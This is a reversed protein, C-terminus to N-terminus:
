FELMKMEEDIFFRSYSKPPEKQFTGDSAFPLPTVKIGNKTREFFVVQGSVNKKGEKSMLYRYRNITYDSHTEVLFRNKKEVASVYLFEGFQAQAKPHLHVEPQQISFFSNESTVMEVVIPLIQSVGYGVNIINVPHQDYLIDISYPSGHMRRNYNIIKINNFLGSQKGFKKLQTIIKKDKNDKSSILDKLKVPIHSGESSFSQIFSDYNRHVKARIPAFGKYKGSVLNTLPMFQLSSSGDKTELMDSGWILLISLLPFDKKWLHYTEIEKDCIMEDSQSVWEEFTIQGIERSKYLLKNGDIKIKLTKKGIILMYEVLSPINKKAGFRMWYYAKSDSRGFDIAITIYRKDSSYHNVIEDFYGMEITDTNFNPNNWFKQDLLLTLLNLIASKGTSNDGVFFNVDRFPIFTNNFGKYNDVYLKKM